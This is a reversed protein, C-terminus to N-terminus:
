RKVLQLPQVVVEPFTQLTVVRLAGSVMVAVNLGAGVKVAAREAVASEM